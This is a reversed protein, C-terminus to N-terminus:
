WLWTLRAGDTNLQFRPALATEGAVVRRGGISIMPAGITALPVGVGLLIPSAPFAPDFTCSGGLNCGGILSLAFGAAAAAGGVVM